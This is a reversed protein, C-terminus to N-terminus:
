VAGSTAIIYGLVSVVLSVVIASIILLRQELKTVTDDLNELSTTRGQLGALMDAQLRQNNQYNADKRNEEDDLTGTLNAFIIMFVADGRRLHAPSPGANYVSFVIRGTYNPDVHFGSINILGKLAHSFKLSIFAATDSPIDVIEETILLAFEGPKISVSEHEDLLRIEEDSSLYVEEGLALDLNWDQKEDSYHRPNRKAEEGDGSDRHDNVGNKRSEDSGEEPRYVAHEQDIVQRLSEGSLFGGNNPRTRNAVM